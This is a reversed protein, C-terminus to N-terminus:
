KFKGWYSDALIAGILPMFYSLFIFCHFIITSDDETYNLVTTLYLVLIASFTFGNNDNIARTPIFDNDPLIM